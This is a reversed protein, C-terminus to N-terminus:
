SYVYEESICLAIFRLLSVAADLISMNKGDRKKRFSEFHGVIWLLRSYLPLYVMDIEFNCAVVM